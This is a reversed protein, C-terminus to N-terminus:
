APWFRWWRIASRRMLSCIPSFTMASVARTISAFPGARSPVTSFRLRSVPLLRGVMLVYYLSFHKTVCGAAYTLGYIICNFRRGFQDALSGVFTGFVLSSGFGAVFLEKIEKTTMGYSEYLAYVHPGQLWDAAMALLYVSLYSRQFQMFNVNKTAPLSTGSLYQTGACLLILVILSGYFIDM